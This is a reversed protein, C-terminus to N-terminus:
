KIGAKNKNKSIANLVIEKENFPIAENGIIQATEHGKGTILVLDKEGSIEIAKEIAKKRDIYSYIEKKDNFSKIGEIIEGIIECPDQTKPNDSTVFLVDAFEAAKRGMSIRKDKGAEGPAAYVGFVLIIKGKTFPRLTTIVEKLGDETHAFDIIVQFDDKRFATEFRGKVGKINKIGESVVSLPINDTVAFTAAALSNYVNVKGPLNLDIRGSFGSYNLYYTVGSPSYEILEAQFDSKEEISYTILEKDLGKLEGFLRKGWLDDINIINFNDSMFFLKKKTNYYDEMDKHFEMHDPSLNTYLAAYFKTAFVRDLGLAHSSVEIFCYEVGENVMQFLIHQLDLSEPTTNKCPIVMDGASAGITGILGTKYGAKEYISKLIHITTTKGNTGTIGVVKMKESPNEYFNGGIVALAKRTDEVKIITIDKPLDIKKSAVVVKAGFKLAGTIYTHGDAVLGPIAVFVSQDKCKRSDYSVSLIEQNINGQVLEFELGKLLEKLNKAM